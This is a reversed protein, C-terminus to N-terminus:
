RCGFWSCGLWCGTGIGCDCSGCCGGRWGRWCAQICTAAISERRAHECIAGVAQKAKKSVLGIPCLELYLGGRGRVGELCRRRNAEYLTQGLDSLKRGAVSRLVHTAESGMGLREILFEFVHHLRGHYYHFQQEVADDPVILTKGEHRTSSEPWVVVWVPDWRAKDRAVMGRYCAQIRTAAAERRYVALDSCMDELLWGTAPSYYLSKDVDGKSVARLEEHIQEGVAEWEDHNTLAKLLESASECSSAERRVQMRAHGQGGEKSRGNGKGKAKRPVYPM